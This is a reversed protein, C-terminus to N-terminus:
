QEMHECLGDCAHEKERICNLRYEGNTYGLKDM